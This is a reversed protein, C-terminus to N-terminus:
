GKFDHKSRRQLVFFSVPIRVPGLAVYAKGLLLDPDDPYVQVLYDRLPPGFLGNGGLSYDLLVGNPYRADRAQPDVAHVRYFGHRKPKEESPAYVHPAEDGNQRVVINYGQVFPEPGSASRPPGEYFGKTFKRIGILKTLGLANGGSFEWGVLDEFRPATGRMMLAEREGNSIERLIQLWSYRKRPEISRSESSSTSEGERPALAASGSEASM